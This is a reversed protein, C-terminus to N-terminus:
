TDELMRWQQQKGKGVLAVRGEVELKKLEQRAAYDTMGLREVLSRTSLHADALAALIAGRDTRSAAAEAGLREKADAVAVPMRDQWHVMASSQGRHLGHRDKSVKLKLVGSPGNDMDTNGTWAQLALEMDVAANKAQSGRAISRNADVSKAPHEILVVGGRACLDAWGVAEIFGAWSEEDIGAGLSAGSDLVCLLPGGLSECAADKADADAARWDAGEVRGFAAGMGMIDARMALMPETGESDIWLVSGGAAIHARALGLVFWTKGIGPPGSVTTRGVSSVLGCLDPEPPQTRAMDGLLVVLGSPAEVLAEAAGAAWGSAWTADWARRPKHSSEPPYCAMARLRSRHEPRGAAALLYACENLKDNRGDGQAMAALDALAAEATDTRLATPSQPRWAPPEWGKAPLGEPCRYCDTDVRGAVVSQAREPLILEGWPHKRAARGSLRVLYAGHTPHDARRTTRWASEGLAPPVTRPRKACDDDLIAYGDHPILGVNAGDAVRSVADTVAMGDALNWKQGVPAKGGPEVPILRGYPALLKLRRPITDKRSHQESM